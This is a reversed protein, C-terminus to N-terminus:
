FYNIQQVTNNIKQNNEFTKVADFRDRHYHSPAFHCRYYVAIANGLQDVFPCFRVSPPQLRHFVIAFFQPQCWCWDIGISMPLFTTPVM